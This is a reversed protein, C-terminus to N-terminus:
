RVSTKPVDTRTMALRVTEVLTSGLFPKILVKADPFGTLDPLPLFRDALLVIPRASRGLEKWASVRGRMADEDVITCGAAKARPSAIAKSLHAHPEVDFGEAELVFVLSRRFGEDSAVVLIKGITALPILEGM